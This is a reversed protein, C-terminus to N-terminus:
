DERMFRAKIFEYHILSEETSFANLASIHADYPGSLANLLAMYRESHDIEVGMSKLTSSFQKIRNAFQLM